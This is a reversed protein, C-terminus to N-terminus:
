PRGRHRSPYGHTAGASILSSNGGASSPVLPLRRRDLLGDNLAFIRWRPASNGPKGGETDSFARTM